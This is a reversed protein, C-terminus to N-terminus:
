NEADGKEITAGLAKILKRCSEKLKDPKYFDAKNELTNEYDKRLIMMRKLLERNDAEAYIMSGEYFEDFKPKYEKLKTSDASNSSIKGVLNILESYVLKKDNWTDLASATIETDTSSTTGQNFYVYISYIAVSWVLIMFIILLQFGHKKTLMPFINKRIVERFLVVFVGLGIGAVGAILGWEKIFEM